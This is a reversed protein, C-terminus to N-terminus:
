FSLDYSHTHTQKYKRTYMNPSAFSISSPQPTKKKELVVESKLLM